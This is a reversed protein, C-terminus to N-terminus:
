NVVEQVKLIERPIEAEGGTVWVTDGLRVEGM